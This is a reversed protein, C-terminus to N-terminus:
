PRQIEAGKLLGEVFTQRRQVQLSQRIQPRADEFSPIKFPRVDDVRVVHWGSPSQIPAAAVMGKSLNVIVNGIAPLVDSPLVWGVKGGNAKGAEDVSDLALKDFTSGGKALSIVDRAQQETKLVVQSLFYQPTTDGDGLVKKQRAYEAREDQESIPNKTLNDALLTDVLVRRRLEELQETFTPTKDLGRKSAESLMVQRVVMESVVQDRLQQTVDTGQNKLDSLVRNVASETIAVGNVNFLTGAALPTKAGPSQAWVASGGWVLIGLAVALLPKKMATKMNLEIGLFSV